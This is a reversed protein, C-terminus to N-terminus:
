YKLRCIVWVSLDILNLVGFVWYFVNDSGDLIGEIKYLRQMSCPNSM